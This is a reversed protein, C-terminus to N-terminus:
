LMCTIQNISKRVIIDHKVFWHATVCKLRDDKEPLDQWRRVVLGGRRRDWGPHDTWSWAADSSGHFDSRRAIPGLVLDQYTRGSRDRVTSVHGPHRATRNRSPRWVSASRSAAPWRLRCTSSLSLSGPSSSILALRTRRSHPQQMGNYANYIVIGPTNITETSKQQTKRHRRKAAYVDYLNPLTYWNFSQHCCMKPSSLEHKKGAIYIGHSNETAHMIIDNFCTQSVHSENLQWNM